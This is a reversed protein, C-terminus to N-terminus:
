IFSKLLSIEKEWIEEDITELVLPVENFREDKMLYTFADVGIFGEGISHHRDKKSGLEAKSDNVHVGMLYKFGITDELEKMTAMYAEETRIDYGAVFAHCTDLCFGIRSKDEVMEIIDRIQEFKYGLNTGQGATNELVVAVGETESLIMNIEGAIVKLCEEESYGKLHSGPHINLRDLGLAKCRNMESIMSNRSKDRKEPDPNGLNILYSGHPLVQEANYGFEDMYSKFKTINDETLEKAIWQRQNKTFLAFGTAGLKHANKPANEVGGAASVHAGVYKSLVVRGYSM